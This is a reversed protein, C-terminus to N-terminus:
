IKRMIVHTESAFGSKDIAMQIDDGFQIFYQQVQTILQQSANKKKLDLIMFRMLDMVEAGFDWVAAPEFGYENYMWSLSSKTFLHTHEAGLQRNWYDQNMIELICTLSFLPVNFFVYRISKNEALANLTDRLETVHELVSIFSIVECDANRIYDISADASIVSLLKEELIRNAYEVQEKSLDVGSANLGMQKYAQIMYGSGAGFDLFKLERVNEGLTELSDLLFSVKPKYIASIRDIFKEKCHEYYDLDGYDESVYAWQAFEQTDEHEGNLHTCMSCEKYGTGHSLFLIEDPLETSCLKCAKRTRQKRYENSVIQERAMYADNESIFNSKISLIDVLSKGYRKIM